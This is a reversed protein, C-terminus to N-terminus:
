VVHMYQVHHRVADDSWVNIAGTHTLQAPKQKVLVCVWARQTARQGPSGAHVPVLFTFGIQIKSFCLRQTTTVDAPGHALRCRAESLYGCWCVVLWNKVPWTGKRSGLCWRWLVSPVTQTFLLLLLRGSNHEFWFHWLSNKKIGTCKQRSAASWSQAIAHSECQQDAPDRAM